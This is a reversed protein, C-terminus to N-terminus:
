QPYLYLSGTFVKKYIVFTHIFAIDLLCLDAACVMNHSTTHVARAADSSPPNISTFVYLISEDHHICTICVAHVMCKEVVMCKGCSNADSSRLRRRQRLVCYRAATSVSKHTTKSFTNKSKWGPMQEIDHGSPFSRLLELAAKKVAQM